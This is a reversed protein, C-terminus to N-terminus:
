EIRAQDARVDKGTKAFIQDVTCGSHDFPYGKEKVIQSWRRPTVDLPNEGDELCATISTYYWEMGSLQNKIKYTKKPMEFVEHDLDKM